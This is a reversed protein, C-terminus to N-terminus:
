LREDEQRLQDITDETPIPYDEFLTILGFASYILRSYKNGLAIITVHNKDDRLYTTNAGHWWGNHYLLHRGDKFEKIRIGLGYNNIGPKEYSYGKYAKQKLEESIFADSYLAADLKLLDRPTSYINKDGYTGDQFTNQWPRGSHKYTPTLAEKDEPYHAVFSHTMGLPEFVLQKMAEAYPYGTVEEIVLALLVYNTNNYSFRKNPPLASPIANNKLISLVDQNTLVEGKDWFRTDDTFYLYNPLGSRHTLLDNITISDYPFTKLYTKVPNDLSVKKQDILRLVATGTLVKSLSALHMPTNRDILTSDKENALGTYNEFIIQDDKAVILGVNLNNEVYAKNFFAAIKRRQNSAKESKNYTIKPLFGAFEISDNVEQIGLSRVKLNAKKETKTCSFFGMLMILIGIANLAKM